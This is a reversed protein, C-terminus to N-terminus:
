HCLFTEKALRRQKCNAPCSRSHVMSALVVFRTESSRRVTLSVSCTKQRTEEPPRSSASCGSCLRPPASVWRQPRATLLATWRLQQYCDRKEPVRHHQCLVSLQASEIGTVASSLLPCSQPNKLILCPSYGTYKCLVAAKTVAVQHSDLGQWGYRGFLSETAYRRSLTVPAHGAPAASRAPSTFM